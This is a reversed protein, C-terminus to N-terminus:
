LEDAADSTYLLCAYSQAWQEVDETMGQFVVDFKNQMEEVESSLNVCDTIASAIGSVSVAIGVAGLVKSAANKLSNIRANAKSESNKDVKYGLSFFLERITM